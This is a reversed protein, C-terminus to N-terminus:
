NTFEVLTIALLNCCSIFNLHGAPEAWSFQYVDICYDKDYLMRSAVFASFLILCPSTCLSLSSVSVFLIYSM